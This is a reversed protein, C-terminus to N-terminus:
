YIEYKKRIINKHLNYFKKNAYDYLKKKSTNPNSFLRKNLVKNDYIGLYICAWKLASIPLIVKSRYLIDDRSEHNLFLYKEFLKFFNHEIKYKPQLFFDCIFKSPDDLGSYEFDYFFLQKNKIIVNHFGIDSHSACLYKKIIFKKSFSLYIFKKYNIFYNELDMFNKLLKLDNYKILIKKTKTIKKKIVVLYDEITFSYESANNLMKFNKISNKSNIQNLFNIYQCISSRNINKQLFSRGKLEELELICEKNNYNILKPTTKINSKKLFKYFKLENQYTNIKKNKIKSLNKKIIKIGNLNIKSILNNGTHISM